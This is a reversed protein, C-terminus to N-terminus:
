KLYMITTTGDTNELVDNEVIEVKSADYAIMYVRGGRDRYVDGSVKEPYYEEKLLRWANALDKQAGSKSSYELYFSNFMGKKVETYGNLKSRLIFNGSIQGSIKLKAKM